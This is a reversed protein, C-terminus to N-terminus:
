SGVESIKRADGGWDEGGHWVERKWIPVTEKLTDICWRAADFAESRHPASVAVVVAAEGVGLVGIRHLGAVRGLGPWRRRAEAVLATLRAVVAEEYAEYELQSVGPRGEAHDRVTGTFSVVAGCGPRSVWVTAAEVPLRRDSLAVWDPADPADLV